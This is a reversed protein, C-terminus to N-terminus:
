QIGAVDQAIQEPTPQGGQPQAPAQPTAPPQQVISPQQPTQVPQEPAAPTEPPEVPPQHPPAPTEERQPFGDGQPQAPAEPLKVRGVVLLPAAEIENLVIPDGTKYTQNNHSLNGDVTYQKDM